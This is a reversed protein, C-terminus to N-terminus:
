NTPRLRGNVTKRERIEVKGRLEEREVATGAANIVLKGHEDLKHKLIYGQEEDATLVQPVKEGNLFIEYAGPRFNKFGLDDKLVSSRM